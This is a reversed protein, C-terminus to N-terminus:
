IDRLESFNLWRDFKHDFGFGQRQLVGDRVSYGKYRTREKGESRPKGAITKVQVIEYLPRLKESHMMM